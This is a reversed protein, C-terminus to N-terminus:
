QCVTGPNQFVERTIAKTQSIGNVTHAFSANNGDSFSLTATGVATGMAATPNFPVANFAPGTTRYLTGSYVGIASKPATVVLWL